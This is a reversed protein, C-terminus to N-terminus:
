SAVVRGLYEPRYGNGIAVRVQEQGKAISKEVDALLEKASGENEM